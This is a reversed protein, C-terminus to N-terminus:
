VAFAIVVATLTDVVHKHDVTTVDVVAVGRDFRPNASTAIGHTGQLPIEADGVTAIIILAGVNTASPRTRLLIAKNNKSADPVVARKVTLFFMNGVDIQVVAQALADVTKRSVRLVYSRERKQRECVDRICNM